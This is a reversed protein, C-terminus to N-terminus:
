FGKLSHYIIDNLHYKNIRKIILISLTLPFIILLNAILIQPIIHSKYEIQKIKIISRLKTKEIKLNNPDIKCNFETYQTDNIILNSDQYDTTVNSNHYDTTSDNNEDDSISDSYQDNLTLDSSQSDSEDTNDQIFISNCYEKVSEKNIMGHYNNLFAELYLLLSYKQSNSEITDLNIDKLQIETLYRLTEDFTVAVGLNSYIMQLQSVTPWIDQLDNFEFGKIYIRENKVVFEM